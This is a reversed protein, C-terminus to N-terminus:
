GLIRNMEDLDNRDFTDNHPSGLASLMKLHPKHEIFKLLNSPGGMSKHSQTTNPLRHFNVLRSERGFFPLLFLLSGFIQRRKEANLETSSHLHGFHTRLILYSGVSKKQYM